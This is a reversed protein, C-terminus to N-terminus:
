IMVSNRRCVQSLFHVCARTMGLQLWAQFNKRCAIGQSSWGNRVSKRYGESTIEPLDIKAALWCSARAMADFSIQLESM